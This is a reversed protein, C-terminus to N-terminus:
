EVIVGEQRAARMLADAGHAFAASDVPFESLVVGHELSIRSAIPSIRNLEEWFDGLPDLVVVVDIDSDERAEGRARSGYLVAKSFRSGYLSKLEAVFQDVAIQWPPKAEM